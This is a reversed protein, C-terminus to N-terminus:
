TNRSPLCAPISLCESSSGSRCGDPGRGESRSASSSRSSRPIMTLPTLSAAQSNRTGFCFPDHQVRLTQSAPCVGTVMLSPYRFYYFENIGPLIIAWLIGLVWARLTNVPMSQDDYNAVASRVEPYPSDDEPGSIPYNLTSEAPCYSPSTGLWTIDNDYNPDFFDPPDETHRSSISESDDFRRSATGFRLYLQSFRCAGARAYAPPPTAEHACGDVLHSPLRM